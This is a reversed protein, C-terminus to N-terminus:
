KHFCSFDNTYLHEMVQQIYAAERFSPTAPIGSYVSSLFAYMSGLHGRLWGAPAKRGPFVGGPALIDGSVNLLLLAVPLESIM